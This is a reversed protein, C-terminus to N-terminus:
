LPRGVGREDKGLKGLGVFGVKPDSSNKADLVSALDRNSIQLNM